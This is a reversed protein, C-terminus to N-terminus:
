ITKVNKSLMEPLYEQIQEIQTKASSYIQNSQVDNAPVGNIYTKSTSLIELMSTLADCIGNLQFYLTDGRVVSEPADKSGLNIRGADISLTKTNINVSENTSLSISKQASLLVSDTKANIIVRDSNLIIQPNTFSSISTPLTKFSRYNESSPKLGISQYSTLYISSLDPNIEETIHKWGEDSSNLPQGNRLITIPDGNDGTSSWGNLQTDTTAATSGFRLSNGWRGQHIIDGAFPLLPHINNREQFTAQSLNIDSNLDIGTEEDTVRRVSGGSTQKYDRQQSEPLTNSTVPNPYANHHPHNWLSIMNIYYYSEEATNRGINSNPLKFILVMENVLPYASLQPFFPKAIGNEGGIFNNLEYFITGIGNPGGYKDFEPYQDNLIIDTVRGVQIGGKVKSMLQSLKEVGPNNGPQLKTNASLGLKFGGNAM